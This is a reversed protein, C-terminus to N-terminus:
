ALPRGAVARALALFSTRVDPPLTPWLRVLESVERTLAASRDGGTADVLTPELLANASAGLVDAVDQLRTAGMPATGTEYRQLQQFSVGLAAALREQSVGCALREARVRLGLQRERDRWQEGDVSGM